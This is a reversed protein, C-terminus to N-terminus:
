YPTDTECNEEWKGLLASDPLILDNKRYSKELIAYGYLFQGFLELVSEVTEDKHNKLYNRLIEEGIEKYGRLAYLGAMEIVIDSNNEHHHYLSDMQSFYKMMRISDGMLRYKTFQYVIYDKHDKELLDVAQGRIEFAERIRGLRGYLSAKRSLYFYKKEKNSSEKELLINNFKLAKKIYTTDRTFLKEIYYDASDRYAQILKQEKHHQYYISLGALFIVGLICFLINIKKTTTSQERM